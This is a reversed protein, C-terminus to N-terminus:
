ERIDTTRVRGEASWGNAREGRSKAGEQKRRANERREGLKEGLCKLFM